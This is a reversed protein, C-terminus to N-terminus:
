MRRGLLGKGWKRQGSINFEKLKTKRGEQITELLQPAIVLFSFLSVIIPIVGHEETVPVGKGLKDIWSRREPDWIGTGSQMQLQNPPLALLIFLLFFFLSYFSFFISLLIFLLFFLTRYILCRVFSIYWFDVLHSDIKCQRCM